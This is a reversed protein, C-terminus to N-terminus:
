KQLCDTATEQLKLRVFWFLSRSVTTGVTQSPTTYHCGSGPNNAAPGPQVGQEGEGEKEGEGQGGQPATEGTQVELEKVRSVCTVFVCTSICTFVDALM